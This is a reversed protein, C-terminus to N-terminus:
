LWPSGTSPNSTSATIGFRESAKPSILRIYHGPVGTSGSKRTVNTMMSRGAGMRIHIHSQAVTKVSGCRLGRKAFRSGAIFFTRSTPKTM